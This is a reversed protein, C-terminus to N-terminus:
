KGCMLCLGTDEQNIEYDYYAACNDCQKIGAQEELHMLALYMKRHQQENLSTEVYERLYFLKEMVRLYNDM